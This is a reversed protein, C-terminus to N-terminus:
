VQTEGNPKRAAKKKPVPKPEARDPVQQQRAHFLTELDSYQGKTILPQAEATQVDSWIEELTALDPADAIRDRLAEYTEDSAEAPEGEPAADVVDGRETPLGLERCLHELGLLGRGGVTLPSSRYVGDAPALSFDFREVFRTVRAQQGESLKEWDEAHFLVTTQPAGAPADAAEDLPEDGSAEGFLDGVAPQPKPAPPPPPLREREVVTGTDLRVIRIEGAAHDVIRDVPVPREEEWTTLVNALREVEAEADDIETKYKAAARKKADVLEAVHARQRVMDEARAKWDEPTIRVRLERTEM